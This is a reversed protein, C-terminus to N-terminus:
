NEKRLIKILEYVDLAAKIEEKETMDKVVIEGTKLEDEGLVIVNKTGIRNAKRMQSRLSTNDYNIEVWLGKARLQEALQLGKESADDGLPCIFLDPGKSIHVSNKILPIIREMGVAFGIGPTVPGGFEEVMSDYRGGAAIAKQSGLSESSM